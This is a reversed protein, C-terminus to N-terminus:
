DIAHGAAVFMLWANFLYLGVLAANAWHDVAHPSTRRVYGLAAVVVATMVMAVVASIALLGSAATLLPAETYAIDDIALVVMNFLNSGLLGGAALDFARLRVAALTAVLEPLSTAGAVFLVGMFSKGLNAREAVIDASIALLAGSATVLIAAGACWAIASRLSGSATSNGADETVAAAPVDVAYLLAAAAFYLM